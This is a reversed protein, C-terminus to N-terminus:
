SDMFCSPQSFLIGSPLLGRHLLLANGHLVYFLVLLEGHEDVRGVPHKLDDPVRLVARAVHAKDAVRRAADELLEVIRLAHALQGGDAPQTWSTPLATLRTFWPM